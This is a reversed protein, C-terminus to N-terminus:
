GELGGLKTKIAKRGYRCYALVFFSVCSSGEWKPSIKPMKQFFDKFVKNKQFCCFRLFCFSYVRWELSCHSQGLLHATKM